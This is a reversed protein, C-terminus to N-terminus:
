CLCRLLCLTLVCVQEPAAIRSGHGLRELDKTTATRGRPVSVAGLLAMRQELLPATEPMPASPM